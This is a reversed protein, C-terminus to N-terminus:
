SIMSGPILRIWFLARNALLIHNLRSVLSRLTAPPYVSGDTKRTDTEFHCLWTCVLNSDHSQLLGAPVREGGFCPWNKAWTNFSNRAWATSAETNTPIVEKAAKELSAPSVPAAFRQINTADVLIRAAKERPPSMWEGMGIDFQSPTPVHLDVSLWLLSPSVVDSRKAM